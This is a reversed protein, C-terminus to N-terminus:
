KQPAAVKPVVKVTGSGADYAFEFGTPADPLRPIYKPVLEQLTNPNRGNEVNFISIIQNLSNADVSGVTKEARQKGKAVAGLYDVPATLASGSSSANTDQSSTDTKGGCGALFCAALLVSVPLKM